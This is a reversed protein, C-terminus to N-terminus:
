ISPQYNGTIDISLSMITKRWWLALYRHVEEGESVFQASISTRQQAPTNQMNMYKCKHQAPSSSSAPKYWNIKCRYILSLKSLNALFTQPFPSRTLCKKDLYEHLNKASSLAENETSNIENKFRRWDLISFNTSTEYPPSFPKLWTFNSIIM